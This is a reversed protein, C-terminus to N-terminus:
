YKGDKDRRIASVGRDLLYVGGNVAALRCFAQSIDSGRTLM